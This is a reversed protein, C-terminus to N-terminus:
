PRPHAARFVQRLDDVPVPTYKATTTLSRHLLLENVSRIDCGNGFLMTAFSVRLSHWSIRKGPLEDLDPNEAVVRVMLEDLVGRLARYPMPATGKLDLFIWPTDRGRTLTPRSESPELGLDRVMFGETFASPNENGLPQASYIFGLSV